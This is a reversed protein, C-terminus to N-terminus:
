DRRPRRSEKLIERAEASLWGGALGHKGGGGKLYGAARAQHLRARICPVSLRYKKALTPTPSQGDEMAAVYDEAIRALLVPSHRPRGRRSPPTRGKPVTRRRPRLRELGALEGAGFAEQLRRVPYTVRVAEIVKGM